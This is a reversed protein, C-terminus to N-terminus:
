ANYTYYEDCAACPAPLEGAVHLRHQEEGAKWVAELRSVLAAPGPSAAGPGDFLSGLMIEGRVCDRCLPVKGDILISLDRKLHWCPKRKLPSLDTVKRPPLFGAFTSYKQVIVNDTEKKWGRWFDELAEENDLARVTQVYASAPFLRILDRATATAEEFGKGRLRGYLVSEPADLSVVWHLREPWRAALRPLLAKDWGLGSTEIILSLGEHGLVDDILGEIEPHLSAEGWLSLDVVAEGTFESVAAILDSFLARPM